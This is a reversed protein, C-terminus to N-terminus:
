GEFYNSKDSDNFAQRGLTVEDVDASALVPLQATAVTAATDPATQTITANM